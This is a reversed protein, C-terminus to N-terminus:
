IRVSREGTCILSLFGPVRDPWAVRGDYLLIEAGTKAAIRRVYEIADIGAAAEIVICKAGVAIGEDEFALGYRLLQVIGQEAQDLFNGPEATKIELVAIDEFPRCALDVSRSQLPTIGKSLLFVSLDKIMAQHRIEAMQTKRQREVGDGAVPRKIFRRAVVKEPDVISLSTDVFPAEASGAEAGRDGSISMATKLNEDIRLISEVVREDVGIEQCKRIAVAGFPTTDKHAVWVDLDGLAFKALVARYVERAVAQPKVRPSVNPVASVVAARPPTISYTTNARILSTIREETELPCISIGIREDAAPLVWRRRRDPDVPLIRFSSLRNNSLVYDGKYFGEEVVSVTEVVVHAFLVDVESGADAIMWLRRGILDAPDVHTEKALAFYEEPFGGSM